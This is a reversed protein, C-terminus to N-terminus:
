RAATMLPTEGGPLALSVDAKSDLLLGIMPASGNTCALSLPTVGYRNKANPDAGAALVAKATDLDDWYAAWHLATAGDPQPANVDAHSALLEQVATKDAKKEADVLRTDLSSAFLAGAAALALVFKM